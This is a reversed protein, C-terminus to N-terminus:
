DNADGTTPPAALRAEPCHTYHFRLAASDAEVEDWSRLQPWVTGWGCPCDIDLVGKDGHVTKVMATKIGDLVYTM